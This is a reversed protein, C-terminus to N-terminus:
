RQLTLSIRSIVVAEQRDASRYVVQGATALRKAQAYTPMRSDRRSAQRLVVYVDGQGALPADDRFARGAFFASWAHPDVIVDAPDANAALWLGAAREDARDAHHPALTQPLGAAVALLLLAALIGRPGLRQGLRPSGVTIRVALAALGAAAWWSCGLLALLLHRGSVYGHSSAVLWMAFLVVTTVVGSVWTGPTQAWADRRWWFGLLVPLWVVYALAQLLEGLVTGLAAWRPGRQGQQIPPAVGRSARDQEALDPSIQNLMRRLEPQRWLFSRGFGALARTDGGVLDNLTPKTTWRGTILVLPAAVLLAPTALSLGCLLFRGLPQRCRALCQMGALVSGAAAVVIAGEPRVLYALGGSFGCAALAWPSRRLLGVSGAWLACAAWLLMTGESLGDALVLSSAPLLQVLVVAGVGAARGFWCRGVAYIPIVLLVGALASAIQACYQMFVAESGAALPRLVRATAAVALPYGPHHPAGAIVETWPHNELLWAYHIFAISDRSAVTTNTIQWVRLGGALLMLALVLAVDQRGVMPAVDASAAGPAVIEDSM